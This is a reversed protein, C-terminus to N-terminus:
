TEEVIRGAAVTYTLNALNFLNPSMSVVIQYKWMMCSLAGSYAVHKLVKLSSFQFAAAGASAGAGRSTVGHRRPGLSCWGARGGALLAARGYETHGDTASM